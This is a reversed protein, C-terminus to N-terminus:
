RLESFRKVVPKGVAERLLAPLLTFAQRAEAPSAYDGSLIRYRFRPDNSRVIRAGSVGSRALLQRVQELDNVAFLQLTYRGTERAQLWGTDAEALREDPSEPPVGSGSRPQGTASAPPPEPGPAGSQGAEAPPPSDATPQEVAPSSATAPQRLQEQLRHIQANNFGFARTDQLLRGARELTAPERELELLALEEEIRQQLREGLLRWALTTQAQRREADSAKRWTELLQRFREPSWSGTALFHQIAAELRSPTARQGAAGPTPAPSRAPRYLLSTGAVLVVTVGLVVIWNSRFWCLWAPTDRPSTPPAQEPAEYLPERGEIIAEILERRLQRYQSFSLEGAAHRLALAHLRSAKM